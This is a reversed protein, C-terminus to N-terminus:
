LASSRPRAGAALPPANAQDAVISGRELRIIRECREIVRADHTV